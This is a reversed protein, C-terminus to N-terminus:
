SSHVSPPPGPHLPVLHDLVYPRAVEPHGLQDPVDPGLLEEGDLEDLPPVLHARILNM